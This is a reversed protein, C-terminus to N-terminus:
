SSASKQDLCNRIIQALKLPHFPKQLFNSGELLKPERGIVDASYGSTYIVKLEPRDSKLKEALERGSIGEPMVMDTLLLHIKKRHEKWIPLAAVGSEAVLVTYGCRQLLNSALLRVPPEDEVLLITENGGPLKSVVSDTPSKPLPGKAAPLYIRFSTGRDVQSEVAIWGHHQQIIGYVTALGLGTGKGVEKTTFFPEFIRPLNEPPIGCGTDTVSLCAYLGPAAGAHKEAQSKDLTEESTTITLRGGNPMADRSNVALNLLIQEIMGPDALVIPLNSAYNANLSVDEGLIRQLMKTMNGVVENLSILTAQIVQKRSFLLLQRTLSAAREAARVIQQASESREGDNLQPNLLISANGQIVTLMNNFDHAVGGALQGIADMKQSQRLQEELQKRETRNRLTAIGFALDDALEKLLATETANFADPRHSYVCIVGFVKGDAKLPLGICAAFGHRLVAERWPALDPHEAMNLFTSPQGTRIAIGVPGRGRENDAWAVQLNKLYAGEAGAWAVPRVSKAKDQEVYGVWTLKYGGTEAVIQCIKTLLSPEDVARVLAENCKSLTQLARNVQRLEEEARKRDTIDRGIGVLGTIEKNQNYLPLKSTLLWRKKAKEDLFYEERNIVSQGQIVKKDDAWFKEAIDKPYRDFDTKGILEAETQCQCTKVDAPNALIKRGAVDKAYILDPLNDILTRLLLREQNLATEAEELATVDKSVGFTGIINGDKDHWPLKTTLWWIDKGNALTAKELKGTLPRGTRIIEQEDNYAVRAHAEPYTDFDTKGILWQAFPEVSALHPPWQDPVAEPHTARYNDRVTQLTDGAKSRSVRVFHSERDKFYINDPTTELLTQFLEQEYVLKAEAQKRETIDRAIKSVGIIKGDSDTIPSLTVSVNIRKGDKRVRVSEYHRVSEGRRILKLFEKEENVCEPAFLMLVPKGVTEAASYGFMREAGQNWSTIIGDPTKSVIADDSSSVISALREVAVEARKRETIDTHVAIWVEEYEPHKFTSVNAYCWFRTGDKKINYVEGNWMGTKKLSRQIDEAVEEPSKETPANIVSINKGILEGQGYGFMKEFEPNTYVITADSVKSLVVGEAMNRMIEGYLRLKEEAQKREIINRAVAVHLETDGFWLHKSSISVPFMSGDKRRHFTEVQQEGGQKNKQFQEWETDWREKPFVPDIDWLHLHMLEERTYGLSRCAQDNVYSFGADRTMWFIADSAQDISFQFMQLTQETRFRETIDRIIGLIFQEGKEDTYLVKKTQITRVMGKGDTFKEENINETETQFVLEDKSWFVEAEHKPFFDYDSKGLLESRQRGMFDCFAENLLVWRHRRDKVFIPDTISNIVKSLYNRSEAVQLEAQKRETIDMTAGYGKVTRGQADKQIHFHTNIHRVEGNTFVIRHDLERSYNPDTTAIAKQIEDNIMAADDPHIFRRIYKAASMTYGGEREATTHLISYYQDNFTFRDTPIDYEWYALRAIRLAEVLQDQKQRLADEAKKRETIDVAVGLIAPEGNGAVSLSIASSPFPIKTTQLFRTRGYADTLKEEPVFKPQGSAIVEQDDKMYSKALASGPSLDLDSRGVMQEPTLKCAEACARNVLLHRSQKDKVFIFHPVLDMVLRLLRESNRLAEETRQRETPELERRWLKGRLLLYLLLATVAVFGGGKCIEWKARIEPDSVLASLAWGTLLIWLGGVVAYILSIRLASKALKIKM